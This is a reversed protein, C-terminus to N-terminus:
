GLTLVPLSVQGSSTDAASVASRLASITATTFAVSSGWTVADPPALIGSLSRLPAAPLKNSRSEIGLVTDALRRLDDDSLGVEIRRRALM